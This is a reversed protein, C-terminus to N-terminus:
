FPSYDYYYQSERLAPPLLGGFPNFTHSTAENVPAPSEELRANYNKKWAEAINRLYNSWM